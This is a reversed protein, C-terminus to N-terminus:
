VHGGIKNQSIDGIPAWTLHIVIQGRSTLRGVARDFYKVRNKTSRIAVGEGLQAFDSPNRNKRAKEWAIRIDIQGRSTLCSVARAFFFQNRTFRIVVAEGLKLSIQPTAIKGLM